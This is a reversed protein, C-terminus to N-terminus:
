RAKPQSVMPWTSLRGSTASPSYRSHRERCAGTSSGSGGIYDIGLVAVKQTDLTKGPGVIEHWWGNRGGAPDFVQRSASIGGLALVVPQGPEKRRTVAIAALLLCVFGLTSAAYRHIMERWAKGAELPRDATLHAVDPDEHIAESVILRGYCGPWDPCGLGADTLRVWAGLTVVILTLVVGARALNIFVRDM